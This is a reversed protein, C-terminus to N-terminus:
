GVQMLAEWARMKLDPDDHEISELIAELEPISPQAGASSVTISAAHSAFMMSDDADLGASYATCFAGVFSDGAATPDTVETKVCPAHIFSSGDYFVAGRSGLTIIVKGVGTKLVAECCRRASEMDSIEIGTMEAAEHENPSLIDLLRLFGPDQQKFPAPNLMVPVGAEHAMEAVLRNAADNIELQLIVMDYSGIRTKLVQLEEETFHMQAGPVVMIRNRTGDPRRELEILACGTTRERDTIMLSTDIGMGALESRLRKADADDGTRGVFDVLAGARVAQCAQNAGKGGCATLFTDGMVTEGEKPFRDGGFTYDINCSGVVLIKPRSM